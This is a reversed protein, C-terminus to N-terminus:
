VAADETANTASDVVSGYESISYYIYVFVFTSICLLVTYPWINVPFLSTFVISGIGFAIIFHCSRLMWRMFGEVSGQKMAILRRSVRFYTTYFDFSMWTAHALFILLSYHLTLLSGYTASIWYAPLGVVLFAVDRAVVRGSLYRPNLLSTHSWTIAVGSIHFYTASLATAMLPYSMRWQFHYHLLLGIGFVAFFLATLRLSRRYVPYHRYAYNNILLGLAMALDLVGVIVLTLNYLQEDM